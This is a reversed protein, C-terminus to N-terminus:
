WTTTVTCSNKQHFINIRFRFFFEDIGISFDLERHEEFIDKQKDSLFAFALAKTDDPTLPEYGELPLMQGHIRVHPPCGVRLHLDSGEAKLTKDLLDLLADKPNGTISM